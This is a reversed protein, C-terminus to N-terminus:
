SNYLKDCYYELSRQNIFDYFGPGSGIVNPIQKCCELIRPVKLHEAIQFAMSQNGIFLKCNNMIVALDFFNNVSYLPVDIGHQKCFVQHETPLGVFLVKDNYKKLFTYSILMNNYRETRNIIMKDRLSDRDTLAQPHSVDISKLSLDCAMEPWLYWGWRNISGYPMTSDFQRLMDFDYDVQEGDWIRFDHIYDQYCLLPSLADFTAKNMTVPVGEDNKISYVAGPYAGYMDGYGLNIRQYIVSKRGTRDYLHKLGPLISLLDGAPM